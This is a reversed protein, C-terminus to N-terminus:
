RQFAPPFELVQYGSANVVATKKHLTVRAEKPDFIRIRGHVHFAPSFREIFGRFCPFGPSGPHDNVGAPPAHTLFIDLYRGYRLKNALLAPYLAALRRRLASDTYQLVRGNRRVSGSAGAILVAGGGTDLRLCRFGANTAKPEENDEAYFHHSGPVFFVPKELASAIFDIYELPVGGACLAADIGGFHEKVHYNFIYPDIQGAVCLFKV